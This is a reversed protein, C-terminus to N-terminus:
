RKGNEGGKLYNYFYFKYEDKMNTFEFNSEIMKKHGVLGDCIITESSYLLFDDLV